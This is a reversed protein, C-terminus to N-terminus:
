AGLHSQRKRIQSLNAQAPVNSNGETLWYNFTQGSLSKMYAVIIGKVYAMITPVM